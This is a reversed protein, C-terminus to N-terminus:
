PLNTEPNIQILTSCPVETKQGSIYQYCTEPLITQIQKPSQVKFYMRWTNDPMRIVYPDSIFKGSIALRTGSELTFNLGDTSVVSVVKGSDQGKQWFCYFRLKGPEYEVPKTSGCDQIFTNETKQFNKGDMSEAIITLNGWDIGRFVYMLYQNKFFLVDPDVLGTYSFVPGAETFNVGDSSTAVHIEHNQIPLGSAFYYLHYERNIYLPAPDWAKPSALNRILCDANQFEFGNSSIMCDTTDWGKSDPTDRFDVFYLIIAGDTRLIASPVSVHDITKFKEDITWNLGDASVASMVSHQYPSQPGYPDSSLSSSTPASQTQPTVQPTATTSPQPPPQVGTQTRAAPLPNAEIGPSGFSGVGPYQSQTLIDTFASSPLPTAMTKLVVRQIFAPIGPRFNHQFTWYEKTESNYYGSPVGYTDNMLLGNVLGPAPSYKGKLDASQYAYLEPASFIYLIYGDPGKFIDPDSAGQTVTIEARNGDDIIFSTGDSGEVETASRFEKVCWSVGTPCSAPDRGLVGPLYFLTIRGKEDLIPSPDVFGNEDISGDKKKLTVKVSNEWAATDIRYRRVKGPNFVYLTNGRRIIDPVSGAHPKYNPLSAWVRGDDSQVVHTQHNRPDNCNITAQDCAHFAM